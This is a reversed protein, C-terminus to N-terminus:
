PILNKCKPDVVSANRMDKCYQGMEVKLNESIKQIDYFSFITFLVALTIAIPVVIGIILWIVKIM